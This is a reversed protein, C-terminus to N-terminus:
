LLKNNRNKFDAIRKEALKCYNEDIDYGVHKRDLELAALNATGAGTFPDLVVDNEFTYLPLYGTFHVSIDISQSL